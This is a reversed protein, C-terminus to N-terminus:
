HLFRRAVSRPPLSPVSFATHSMRIGIYMIYLELKQKVYKIYVRSMLHARRAVNVTILNILYKGNLTYIIELHEYMINRGGLDTM